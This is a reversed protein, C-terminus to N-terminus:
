AVPVLAEVLEIRREDRQLLLVRFFQKRVHVGVGAHAVEFVRDDCNDFRVVFLGKPPEVQLASKVAAIVHVALAELLEPAVPEDLLVAGRLLRARRPLEGLLRQRVEVLEADLVAVIREHVALPRASRNLHLAVEVLEEGVHLVVEPGPHEAVEFVFEAELCGDGGRLEVEGRRVEHRLHVIDIDVGVPAVRFYVIALIPAYAVLRHHVVIHVADASQRALADEALGVRDAFVVMGVGVEVARFPLGHEPRVARQVAPVAHELIGVVVALVGLRVVVLVEEGHRRARVHERM